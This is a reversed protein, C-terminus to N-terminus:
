SLRRVDKTSLSDKVAYPLGHLAGFPGGKVCRKDALKAEDMAPAKLGCLLKRPVLSRMDFTSASSRVATWPAKASVPECSPSIIAGKVEKTNTINERSRMMIVRPDSM